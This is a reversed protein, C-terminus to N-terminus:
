RPQQDTARTRGSNIPIERAAPEPERNFFGQFFIGMDQRSVGSTLVAAIIGLVLLLFLAGFRGVGQTLTWAVLGGLYGGGMGAEAVETVDYYENNMAIVALTAFAEFALFLLIFGVLRLVPLGPPQEMGWLVLYFGSLGLVIPIIAGGWGFLRWMGSSLFTTLEGQSPSLLSLIIIATLFIFFIGFIIAKQQLNLSLNFRPSKSRSSSRRAPAKRARTKRATTKKRTTKKRATSRKRTM